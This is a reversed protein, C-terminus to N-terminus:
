RRRRRGLTITSTTTAATTTAAAAPTTAITATAEECETCVRLNESQADTWRLAEQLWKDASPSRRLMQRALPKRYGNTRRPAKQLPKEPSPSYINVQQEDATM